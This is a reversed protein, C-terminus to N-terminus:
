QQKWTLKVEVKVVKSLRHVVSGWGVRLSRSWILQGSSLKWLTKQVSNIMGVKCASYWGWEGATIKIHKCM